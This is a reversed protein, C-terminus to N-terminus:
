NIPFLTLTFVSVEQKSRKFNEISFAYVTVERIGLERCWQLCEALKEFGKSHGKIKQVNNKTAYRRNGDMIFAIHRPIPGCKIVNVCFQQIVTLSNEVIWSMEIEKSWFSRGTRQILSEDLLSLICNLNFYSTSALRHFANQIFLKDTRILLSLPFSVSGGLVNM